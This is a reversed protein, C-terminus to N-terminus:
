IHVVSCSPSMEIQEHMAQAHMRMPCGLPACTGADLLCWCACSDLHLHLGYDGGRAIVECMMHTQTHLHAYMRTHMGASVDVCVDLSVHLCM